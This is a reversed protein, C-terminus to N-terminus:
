SQNNKGVNNGRLEGNILRRSRGAGQYKHNHENAKQDRNHNEIVDVIIHHKPPLNSAAVVIFLAAYFRLNVCIYASRISKRASTITVKSPDAGSLKNRCRPNRDYNIPFSFIVLTRVVFRNMISDRDCIGYRRGTGFFM